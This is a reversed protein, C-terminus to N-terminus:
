QLRKFYNDLRKEVISALSSDKSIDQIYEVIGRLISSYLAFLNIIVYDKSLNRILDNEHYQTKVGDDGPLRYYINKAEYKRSLDSESIGSHVIGCRAAYLDIGKVSLKELDLYKECWKIFDERTVNEKGEEMSLYALHDILSYILNLSATYKKYKISFDVVETYDNIHETM